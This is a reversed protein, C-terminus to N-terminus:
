SELRRFAIVSLPLFVLTLLVPWALALLAAHEAAWSTGSWGPNDFLARVSATTASLPNWETIAGLWRPMTTPSVFANSFFAVPWVLIQLAMLTTPNHFLLALWIGAWLLAFRLLLLLGFAALAAVAPGHWRWGVLLGCTAMVALGLASVLMDATCRGVVVASSAMPLSRFRDMVGRTTDTALAAYTNEVGFAMTLAFLGPMLFERYSAGGPMAMAGGFVYGFMVVMLVPFLLGLVFPAPERVWHRVERGAITWADALAWGLSSM